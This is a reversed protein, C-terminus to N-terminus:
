KALHKEIISKIKDANNYLTLATTSVAATTTAVKIIKSAVAKGRSVDSKSLMSYQKEMQLRNIVKRLEDDSMDKASKKVEGKFSAKKKRLTSLPKAGVTSRTGKSGGLQAQSRRVGWKMGLIGHHKLVNASM